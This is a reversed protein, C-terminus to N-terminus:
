SCPQSFKSVGLGIRIVLALAVDCDKSSCLLWGRDQGFGVVSSGCMVRFLIFSCVLQCVICELSHRASQVRLSM